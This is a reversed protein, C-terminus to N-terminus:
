GAFLGSRLSPGMQMALRLLTPMAFLTLTTAAFLGSVLCATM